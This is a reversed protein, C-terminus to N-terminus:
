SAPPAERRRSAWHTPRPTSETRPPAARSSAPPCGRRRASPPRNGPAATAPADHRPLIHQIAKTQQQVVSFQQAFGEATGGFLGAQSIPPTSFSHRTSTMWRQWTSGSIASKSCWPPCRWGSLGRKSNRREYLSTLRWACRRCWCWTPVVRTCRNSHRQKTFRCSLLQMCPLPQRTWLVILKPWSFLPWSVPKPRSVPFIGGLPPMKHACTGVMSPLSSPPSLRAAEPRSLPWGRSRWSRMCRRPFLCWLLYGIMWGRPSLVPRDTSMWGSLWPQKPLCPQWSQTRHPPPSLVRPTSSQRVKMRLPRLGMGSAAISMRDESPAGFPISTMGHSSGAFDGPFRIPESRSSYSTRPFMGPPSDRVTVRYRLWAWVGVVPAHTM